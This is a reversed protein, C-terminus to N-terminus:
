FLWKRSFDKLNFILYSYFQSKMPPLFSKVNTCTELLFMLGDGPIQEFIKLIIEKNNMIHLVVVQQATSIFQMLTSFTSDELTRALAADKIFSARYILDITEKMEPIPVIEKHKM